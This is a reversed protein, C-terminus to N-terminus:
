SSQTGKKIHYEINNEICFSVLRECLADYFAQYGPYATVQKNYHLRGFVIKDVFKISNLLVDFDQIIINPTPYPEISVWTSFGNQSLNALASIREAIPAAGKEYQKVFDDSLSVLTIGYQNIKQSNVLTQPLVGKTLASVPINYDNIIRILEVSENIIEPFGYMFPDTTFCLHVTQIKSHSKELEKELLSKANLVLKPQCWEDFSKVKGFRKALLYAYCPYTCAHSCGLVHNITHQAYEVGSRYLLTKRAIYDM